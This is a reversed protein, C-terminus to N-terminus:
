SAVKIARADETDTVPNIRSRELRGSLYDSKCAFRQLKGSSTFPLTGPRLLMVDAVPIAHRDTVSRRIATTIQRVSDATLRARIATPTLEALAVVRESHEDDVSVVVCHGARVAPHSHEASAELDQPYHNSGDVIVLDKLRGTIFLEGDVVAGLDGTRLFGDGTGDVSLGFTDASKEPKRWYGSGVSDSSVCVEGIDGDPRPQLTEPDAIIVRFGQRPRGNGVLSVARDPGSRARLTGDAMAALDFHRVVPPRGVRGATVMLTSEALGYCPLFTEPRFGCGAFAATFRELTHPSIREAGVIAHRWGRLDLRRIKDDSVRDVCLDFAFNPAATVSDDRSLATLWNVPRQVFALPAMLEVRCGSYAPSLVGSILGMDHFAPLWLAAVTQITPKCTDVIARLNHLVNQHTLVVGKPTGTSGSSYQLYAISAPTVTPPRWHRQQNTDVQDTPIEIVRDLGAAVRFEPAVKTLASHTCLLLEPRCDEIVARTRAAAAWAAANTLASSIPPAPVAIVGAYLCGFFAAVFDLGPPFPLLARGGVPVERRIEVAIARARRDLEGFTWSAEPEAGDRLYVYGVRFADTDARNRLVDILTAPTRMTDTM